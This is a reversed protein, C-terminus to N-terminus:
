PPTTGVICADDLVGGEGLHYLVTAVGRSEEGWWGADIKLMRTGGRMVPPGNEWFSFRGCRTVALWMKWLMQLSPFPYKVFGPCLLCLTSVLCLAGLICWEFQDLALLLARQGWCTYELYSFWCPTWIQSGGPQNGRLGHSRPANGSHTLGSPKPPYFVWPASGGCWSLVQRGHPEQRLNRLSWSAIPTVLFGSQHSIKRTLLILCSSSFPRVKCTQLQWLMFLNLLVLQVNVTDSIPGETWQCFGPFHFPLFPCFLKSPCILNLIPTTPHSSQHHPLVRLLFRPSSPNEVWFAWDWPWSHFGPVEGHLLHVLSHDRVWQGGSVAIPKWAPTHITQSTGRWGSDHTKKCEKLPGLGGQRHAM